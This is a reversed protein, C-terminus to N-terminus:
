GENTIKRYLGSEILYTKVLTTTLHDIDEGNELNNRIDTSRVKLKEPCMLISFTETIENAKYFKDFNYFNDPGVIFTIDATPNLEKIHNLVQWTTVSAGQSQLSQEVKSLEVNKIKLDQIFKTVLECRTEFEIMQKGWAHAISPVLLVRDFHCLSEIVSKHGLSPPNFASGFVAIKTM